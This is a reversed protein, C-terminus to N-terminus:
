NATVACMTCQEPQPACDSALVRLAMWVAVLLAVVVVALAGKAKVKFGLGALELQPPESGTFKMSQWDWHGEGQALFQGNLNLVARARLLSFRWRPHGPRHQVEARNM